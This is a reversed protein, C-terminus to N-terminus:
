VLEREDSGGKVARARMAEASGYRRRLIERARHLQVRVAVRSAGTAQAVDAISFDAYYFLFVIARQRPALFALAGLPTDIEVDATGSQPQDSSGTRDRETQLSKGAHRFAVWVICGLFFLASEDPAKSRVLLRKPWPTTQLTGVAVRSRM